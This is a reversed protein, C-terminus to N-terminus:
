AGRGRRSRLKCLILSNGTENYHAWSTFHRILFLGRGGPGELNAPDTPDPVRRPDFGRGQDTIRAVVCDDGVRYRVEVRKAPDYQHGHKLANALAEELALRVGFIDMEEYDDDAMASTVHQVIGLVEDTSCLREEQWSDPAEITAPLDRHASITPVIM